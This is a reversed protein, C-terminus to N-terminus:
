ALIFAYKECKIIKSLIHSFKTVEDLLSVLKERPITEAILIEYLCAVNPQNNEYLVGTLLRDDFVTDVQFIFYLAQLMRLKLRHQLSDSFYRPKEKLLTVSQDLLKNKIATLSGDQPTCLTQIM